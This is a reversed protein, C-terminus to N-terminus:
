RGSGGPCRSPGDPAPVVGSPRRARPCPRPSTGRCPGRTRSRGPRPRARDGPDVKVAILARVPPELRALGRCRRGAGAPPRPGRLWPLEETFMTVCQRYSCPMRTIDTGWCARDPGFAEFMQRLYEHINEVPVAPELLEACGVDQRRRQPVPSRRCTRSIRSYSTNGESRIAPHIGSSRPSAQFM